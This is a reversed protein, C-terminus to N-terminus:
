KIKHMFAFTNTSNNVEVLLTVDIFPREDTLLTADIFLMADILLQVGVFLTAFVSM